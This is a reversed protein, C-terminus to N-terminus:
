STEALAAAFGDLIEALPRFLITENTQLTFEAGGPSVLRPPRIAIGQALLRTPL